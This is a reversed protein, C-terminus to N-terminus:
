IPMSRSSEPWRAPSPTLMPPDSTPSSTLMRRPAHFGTSRAPSPAGVLYRIGLADFIRAITGVVLIPESLM